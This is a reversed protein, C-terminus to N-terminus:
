KMINFKPTIELIQSFSVPDDMVKVDYEKAEELLKEHIKINDISHEVKLVLLMAKIINTRKHVKESLEMSKSDKEALKIEMDTKLDWYKDRWTRNSEEEEKYSFYLMVTNVILIINLSISLALAFGIEM